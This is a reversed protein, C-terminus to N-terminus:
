PGDRGEPRFLPGRNRMVPVWSDFWVERHVSVGYGPSLASVEGGVHKELKEEGGLWEAM